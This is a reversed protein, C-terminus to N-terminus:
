QDCEDIIQQLGVARVGHDHFLGAAGDLMRDRKGPAAKRAMTVEVGV